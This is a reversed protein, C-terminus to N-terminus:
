VEVVGLFQGTQVLYIEELSQGRDCIRGREEEMRSLVESIEESALSVGQHRLNIVVWHNPYKVLVEPHENFWGQVREDELINMRDDEKNKKKPGIYNFCFRM